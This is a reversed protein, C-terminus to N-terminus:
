VCCTKATCTNGHHVYDFVPWCNNRNMLRAEGPRRRFYNYIRITFDIFIKIYKIIRDQNRM